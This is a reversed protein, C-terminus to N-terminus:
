NEKAVAERVVKKILVEYIAGFKTLTDFDVKTLIEIGFRIACEPCIVVFPKESFHLTIEMDHLITQEIRKRNEETVAVVHLARIGKLSKFVEPDFPNPAKKENMEYREMCKLAEFAYQRSNMGTHGCFWCKPAMLNNADRLRARAEKYFTKPSNKEREEAVREKEAQKALIDKTEQHERCARKGNGIAYSKPRTIEKGCIACIFTQIPM